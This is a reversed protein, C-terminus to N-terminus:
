NKKKKEFNALSIYKHKITVRHRLAIFQSKKKGACGDLVTM